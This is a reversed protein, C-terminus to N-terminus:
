MFYNAIKTLEYILIVSGLISPLSISFFGFTLPNCSLNYKESNSSREVEREINKELRTSIRGLFILNLKQTFSISNPIMDAYFVLWFVMCPLILVIFVFLSICISKFVPILQPEHVLKYHVYFFLGVTITVNIIQKGIEILKLGSFVSDTSGRILNSQASLGTSSNSYSDRQVYSIEQETYNSNLFVQRNSPRLFYRKSISNQKASNTEFDYELKNTISRSINDVCKVAISTFLVWTFFNGLLFIHKVLNFIVNENRGNGSIKSNLILWTINIGDSNPDFGFPILPFFPLVGIVMLSKCFFIFVVLTITLTWIKSSRIEENGSLIKLAGPLIIHFTLASIVFTGIDLISGILGWIHVDWDFISESNFYSSISADKKMSKDNILSISLFSFLLLGFFNVWSVISIILIGETFSNIVIILITAILLLLISYNFEPNGKFFNLGFENLKLSEFDFFIQSGQFIVFSAYSLCFLVMISVIALTFRAKLSKMSKRFRKKLEGEITLLPSSSRIGEMNKRSGGKIRVGKLDYASGGSFYYCNENSYAKNQSSNIDNRYKSYMIARMVANPYDKPMGLRQLCGSLNILSIGSILLYFCILIISLAVIVGIDVKSKTLLKEFSKSCVGPIAFLSSFPFGSCLITFVGFFIFRSGFLNSIM